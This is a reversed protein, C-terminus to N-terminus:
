GPHIKDRFLLLIQLHLALYVDDNSVSSHIFSFPLLSFILLGVNWKGFMTEPLQLSTLNIEVVPGGFNFKFLYNIPHIFM